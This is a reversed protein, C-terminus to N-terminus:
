DNFTAFLGPDLEFVHEEHESFNIDSVISSVIGSPLTARYRAIYIARNSTELFDSRNFNRVYLSGNGLPVTAMLAQGSSATGPQVFIGSAWDAVFYDPYRVLEVTPNLGSIPISDVQVQL